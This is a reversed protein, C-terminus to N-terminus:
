KTIRHYRRKVGQYSPTGNDIITLEFDDRDLWRISDKGSKGNSYREYLIGDSYRWSAHDTATRGQADKFVYRTAGDQMFTVTIEMRQGQENVHTRWGGVLDKDTYPSPAPSPTPTSDSSPSDTPKSAVQSESGQRPETASAPATRLEFVLLAIAGGGLL